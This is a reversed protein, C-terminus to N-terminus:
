AGGPAAIEFNELLQPDFRVELEERRQTVLSAILQTARRSALAQRTADKETEFEAPDMRTRESIRGLVAGTETEVPGVWDGAEGAFAASSLEAIRGLSGVAGDRNFPETEEIELNLSEALADLTGDEDRDSWAALREAALQRLRANRAAAEVEARVEDLEPLRPEEVAAVRLIAWGRAIRVPASVEGAALGFAEAAFPTARGIGAVNDDRGFSEATQYSVGAEEEALASLEGTEAAKAALVQAKEEAASRAKDALLQQRIAGSVDEFGQQGGVNKELVEILHLGFDTAVPGVLEGPQAAFSAEEFAPVMAGRGFFGLDGGRTKSGPDESLSEALAGFDEGALIRARAAELQARATEANREDNVQLLIHRARVQEPLNYDAKNAEYYSRLESDDLVISTRLQNVDVVLYDATRREPTRFDEKNADFYEILTAEDLEVGDVRDYPLKVFRLSAREVQRRYETEIDGDSVYFDRALLGRVKDLVLDRRVSAEFSDADLGNARLIRQYETQGIFAGDDEQFVELSLIQERLETDTVGLELREAEMLLIRDAVLSDLVQMPLGMQRAFDANFRDGYAQRYLGEMRRYAQEFEPYSITEDGVYVATDSAGGSQDSGAFIGFEILIFAAIVLWLVWHLRKLNDRFGKLM